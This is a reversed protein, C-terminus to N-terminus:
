GIRAPWVGAPHVSWAPVASIVPVTATPDNAIAHVVTQPLEVAGGFLQFCQRVPNISPRKDPRPRNRCFIDKLNKRPRFRTSWKESETDATLLVDVNEPVAVFGQGPIIAVKPARCLERDRSM